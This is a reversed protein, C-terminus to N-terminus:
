LVKLIFIFRKGKYREDVKFHKRYWSVFRYDEEKFYHHPFTKNAHPLSVVEFNSEDFDFKYADNLDEPIYLWDVNFNLVDRGM